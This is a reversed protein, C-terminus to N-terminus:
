VLAPFSLYGYLSDPICEWPPGHSRPPKLGTHLYASLQVLRMTLLDELCLAGEIIGLAVAPVKGTTWHPRVFNHTIQHVDLTRQLGAKCKACPAKDYTNTRRRLAANQAEVHNAHIDSSDLNQM